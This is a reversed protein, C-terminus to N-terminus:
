EEAESELAESELWHKICATCDDDFCSDSFQKEMPGSAHSTGYPCAFITMPSDAMEDISMSKIKEYNTMTNVGRAVARRTETNHLENRLDAIQPVIKDISGSASAGNAATINSTIHTVEAELTAIRVRYNCINDSM